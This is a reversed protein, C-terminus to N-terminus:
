EEPARPLTFHFVSGKGVTSEAWIRGGHNEVIRGCITLGVGSGSYERGHLRKFPAFISDGHQQEFGIGNDEVSIVWHRGEPRACIHASPKRDPSRYKIANSILNQFLRAIQSHAAIVPPLPDHTVAMGSEEIAGALQAIATEVDEDLSMVVVPEKEAGVRAYTLLNDILGKMRAIAKLIFDLL